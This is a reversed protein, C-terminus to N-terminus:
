TDVPKVSPPLTSPADAALTSKRKNSHLRKTTAVASMYGFIAVALLTGLSLIAVLSGSFM